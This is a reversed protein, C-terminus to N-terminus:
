PLRLDHRRPPCTIARALPFVIVVFSLRVGARPKAETFPAHSDRYRPLWRAHDPLLIGNGGILAIPFAAISGQHFPVHFGRALEKPASEWISFPVASHYISYRFCRSSCEALVPLGPFDIALESARLCPALSCSRQLRRPCRTIIRGNGAETETM